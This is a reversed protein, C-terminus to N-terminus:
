TQPRGKSGVPHRTFYRRVGRFVAEAVQQQYKPNALRREEQPNSIFATEVLISPIDPAKLVAFGAQEVGDKHLEGVGDLESLVSRALRNSDKVLATASMEVLMRAVTSDRHRLNAGGVLDARNEQRALWRAANSSARRESLVFVSAGRADPKVWADAHLSIFLDARVRRAKAVRVHLPVFFDADRTMYARMNPEQSIRERLMKAIALVVDKERTGARGIAGPDEGGHGPDIAITVLRDVIPKRAPGQSHRNDAARVQSASAPGSPRTNRAIRISDGYPNFADAEAAERERQRILANIADDVRAQTGPLGTATAPQASGSRNSGTAAGPGTAAPAPVGRPPLEVGGRANAEALLDLLPDIARAPFLDIVLRHKYQAVPALTFLQPTVRSKLDFVLRMLRPRYQGVRVTKIYPDDPQVKALLDRLSSDVDIGDLDVVLRPPDDVLTHTFKLAEDLELTVRTYDRAPWVRVALISQAHALRVDLAFLALGAALFHRRGGSTLQTVDSVDALGPGM